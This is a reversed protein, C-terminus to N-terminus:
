WLARWARYQENIRVSWIEGDGAIKQLPTIPTRAKPSCQYALRRPDQRLHLRRLRALLFAPSQIV